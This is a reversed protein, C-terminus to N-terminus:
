IRTESTYNCASRSVLDYSFEIDHGFAGHNQCTKSAFLAAFAMSQSILRDECIEFYEKTKEQASLATKMLELQRMGDLYSSIFMSLYSDGAGLTDVAEVPFAEQFYMERGNFVLSGDMGMTGIAMKAGQDVCERLIEEVAARGMDPCSLAVFDFIAAGEKLSERTWNSSFDCFAPITSKGFQEFAGPGYIADTSTYLLDYDGDQGKKVDEVSLPLKKKAGRFYNGFVRDNGNLIIYCWATQEDIIHVRSVDVGYARLSDLQLQGLRDNGVSSVYAVQHGLMAMYAAANLACGGPFVRKQKLYIDVNNDGACYIRLM